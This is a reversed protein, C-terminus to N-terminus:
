LTVGTELEAKWASISMDMTGSERRNGNVTMVQLYTNYNKISVENGAVLGHWTFWFGANALRAKNMGAVFEKVTVYSCPSIHQM